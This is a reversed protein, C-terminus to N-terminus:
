WKPRGGKKFEDIIDRANKKKKALKESATKTFWRDFIPVSALFNNIIELIATM